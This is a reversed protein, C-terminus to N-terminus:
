ASRVWTYRGRIREGDVHLRQHRDIWMVHTGDVWAATARTPLRVDAFPRRQLTDPDYAELRNTRQDHADAQFVLISGDAGVGALRPWPAEFDSAIVVGTAEGYGTLEADTVVLRFENGSDPQVFELVALRDASVWGADYPDRSPQPDILDEERIIESDLDRIALRFYGLSLLRQASPDLDFNYGPLPFPDRPGVGVDIAWWRGWVPECCETVWARRGDPTVAASHLRGTGPQDTLLVVLDGGSPIYIASGASDIAVVAAAPQPDPPDCHALGAFTPLVAVALWSRTTMAAGGYAAASRRPKFWTAGNRRSPEDAVLRALRWGERLADVCAQGDDDIVVTVLDGAEVDMQEPLPHFAQHRHGDVYPENTLTAAGMEACFWSLVGHITGSRSVCTRVPTAPRSGLFRYRRM